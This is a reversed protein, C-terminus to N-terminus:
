LTAKCSAIKGGCACGQGSFLYLTARIPLPASSIQEIAKAHDELDGTRSGNVAAARM